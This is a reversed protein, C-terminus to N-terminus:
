KCGRCSVHHYSLVYCSSDELISEAIGESALSSFRKSLLHFCATLLNCIGKSLRCLQALPLLTCSIPPYLHATPGQKSEGDSQSPADEYLSPEESAEEKKVASRTIGFKRVRPLAQEPQTAPGTVPGRGRFTGVFVQM